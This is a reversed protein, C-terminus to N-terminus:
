SELGSLAALHLKGRPLMTDAGGAPVVSWHVGPLDKVLGAMRDFLGPLEIQNGDTGTVRVIGGVSNGTALDVLRLRVKAPGADQAAVFVCAGLVALSPFALLPKCMPRPRTPPLNPLAYGANYVRRQGVCAAFVPQMAGALEAGACFRLRRMRVASALNTEHGCPQGKVLLPCSSGRARAM